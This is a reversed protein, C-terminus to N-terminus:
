KYKFKFGRSNNNWNKLSRSISTINFHLCVSTANPWEQIFKGQKDFQLVPKSNKESIKKNREINSYCSHNKKKQSIKEKQEETLKNGLAYKNGLKAKRKKENSIDSHKKGTNAKSTQYKQFETQKYGKHYNNNKNALSINIKKDEPFKTIGSSYKTANYFMSNNYADFYEIWYEELEKMIDCSDVKALIHKIFNKKGYKKIAKKIYVGSGFYKPNNKSDSGIYKKGNVINHICYVIM